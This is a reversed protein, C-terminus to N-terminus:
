SGPTPSACRRGSCSPTSRTGAMAEPTSGHRGPAAGARVAVAGDPHRRAPPSMRQRWRLPRAAREAWGPQTCMALCQPPSCVLDGYVWRVWSLSTPSGQRSLVWDTYRSSPIAGSSASPGGSRLAVPAVYSLSTRGHARVLRLLGGLAIVRDFVTRRWHPSAERPKPGDTWNDILGEPGLANFRHVWDRLRQRDMGGITAASRRDMGDRVAALSLLRRSQNVDKSRRALTRLAEASYDDRLRIASPM